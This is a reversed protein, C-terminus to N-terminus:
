SNIVWKKFDRELPEFRLDSDFDRLFDVGCYTIITRIRAIRKPDPSYVAQTWEKGWEKVQQSNAMLM